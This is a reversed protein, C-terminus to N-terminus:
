NPLNYTNGSSSTYSSGGQAPQVTGGLQEYAGVSENVMGQFVTRRALAKQALTEADDGVQPIYVQRADKFEEASIAAGSERRLVATIFNKEAQEFQKREASKMREPILGGTFSSFVKLDEKGFFNEAQEMRSAFTGAQSQSTTFAKGTVPSIGIQGTGLGGGLATGAFRGVSPVRLVDEKTEARQIAELTANGAGGEMANQLMDLKFDELDQLRAREEDYERQEQQIKQNFQRQEALTFREKNEEFLFTLSDLKAQRDALELEVKRNVTAQADNFEGARALQIISLDALERNFVRTEERVRAAKQARTGFEGEIDRIRLDLEREKRRIRNDIATKAERKEDLRARREARETFRSVDGLDEISEAVDGRLTDLEQRDDQLEDVEPVDPEFREQRPPPPLNVDGVGSELVDTDIVNNVEEKLSVEPTFNTTDKVKFEPTRDLQGFQSLDQVKSLNITEAM